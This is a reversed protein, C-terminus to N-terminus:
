SKSRVLALTGPPSGKLPVYQSFVCGCTDMGRVYSSNILLYPVLLLVLSVAFTHQFVLPDRICSYRM